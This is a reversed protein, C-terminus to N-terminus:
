KHKKKILTTGNFGYTCGHNITFVLDQVVAGSGFWADRKVDNICDLVALTQDKCGGEKCFAEGDESTVNMWGEITLKYKDPCSPPTNRLCEAVSIWQQFPSLNANCRPDKCKGEGGSVLFSAVLLTSVLWVGRAAPCLKEM